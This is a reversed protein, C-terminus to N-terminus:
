CICNVHWSSFPCFITLKKTLLKYLCNHLFPISLYKLCRQFLLIGKFISIHSHSMQCLAMAVFSLRNFLFQIPFGVQWKQKAWSDMRCRKKEKGVVFYM